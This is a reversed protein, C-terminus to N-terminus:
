IFLPIVIPILLLAWLIWLIINIPIMKENVHDEIPEIITQYLDDVYDVYAQKQIFNSLMKLYAGKYIEKKHHKLLQDFEKQKMLFDFYKILQWHKYLKKVSYMSSASTTLWDLDSKFRNLPYLMHILCLKAKGQSNRCMLWCKIGEGVFIPLCLIFVCLIVFIIVSLVAVIVLVEYKISLLFNDLTLTNLQAFHNYVEESLLKIKEFLMLM